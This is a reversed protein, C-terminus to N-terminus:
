AIGALTVEDAYYGGRNQRLNFRVLDGEKIGPSVVNKARFHFEERTGDLRLYGYGKEPLYFIIIGLQM